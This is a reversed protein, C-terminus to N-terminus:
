RAVYPLSYSSTDLGSAMAVVYAVSEPEVERRSRPDTCGESGHGLEIHALEHALIKCAQEPSALDARVRVTRKASVTVGTQGHQVRETDPLSETRLHRSSYPSSRRM